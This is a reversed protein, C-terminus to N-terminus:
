WWNGTEVTIINSASSNCKYNSSMVSANYTTGCRLGMIQCNLETTSCTYMGGSSDTVSAIYFLAGNSMNWTLTISDSSCNTIPLLNQPVCPASCVCFCQLVPLVAQLAGHLVCPALKNNMAHVRKQQAARSGLKRREIGLQTNDPKWYVSFPGLLGFSNKFVVM